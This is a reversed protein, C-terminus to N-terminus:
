KVSKVIIYTRDVPHPCYEAGLTFLVERKEFFVM